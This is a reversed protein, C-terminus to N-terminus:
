IKVDKLKMSGEAEDLPYSASWKQGTVVEPQLTRNVPDASERLIITLRVTSAKFESVLSKLQLRTKASQCSLAVVSLCCPVELWKRIFSNIKAEMEEVWSIAVEYVTLRWRLVPVLYFQYCWLKYKGPLGSMDINVLCM